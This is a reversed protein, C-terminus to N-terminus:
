AGPTETLAMTCGGSKGMRLSVEPLSDGVASRTGCADGCGTFRRVAEGPSLNCPGPNKGFDMVREPELFVGPNYVCATSSIWVKKSWDFVAARRL